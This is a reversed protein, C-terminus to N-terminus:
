PIVKRRVIDMDSENLRVLVRDTAPNFDLLTDSGFESLAKMMVESVLPQPSGGHGDNIAISSFQPPAQRSIFVIEPRNPVFAPSGAYGEFVTQPPGGAAPLLMIRAATEGYAFLGIWHGDSSWGFPSGDKAVVRETKTAPDLIVTEGSTQDPGLRELLVPGLASFGKFYTSQNPVTPLQTDRGSNVDVIHAEFFGSPRSTYGLRKSDPSWNIDGAPGATDLHQTHGDSVNLLMLEGLLTGSWSPRVFAVQNGDPSLQANSLLRDDTLVKDGDPSLLHLRSRHRASVYYLWGSADIAPSHDEGTSFTVQEPKGGAIKVRWLNVLGQKVASYYAWRGNPSVAAPAAILDDTVLARPPASGDSPVVLLRPQRRKQYAEVFVIQSGDPTWAPLVKPAGAVETLNQPNEGRPGGAYLDEKWVGAKNELRSFALRKGDPSFVGFEAAPLIRHTEGGLAPVEWLADNDISFIIRSGDASFRPFSKAGSTRTLQTAEGSSAFAVYVQNDGSIFALLKGDPSLAPYSISARMRTVPYTQSQGTGRPPALFFTALATVVVAAALLAPVRWKAGAPPSLVATAPVPALAPGPAPSLGPAPMRISATVATLKREARRLDALLDACSQYREERDKEMLKEVVREFDEPVNPDFQRIPAPADHCIHFMSDVMPGDFAKRGSLSEYLVSGLSFLDSRADMDLMRTQEPSMYHVTGLIFGPTTLSNNMTAAAEEEQSVNPHRLKAIGFDLLKTQGETSIIINEPKIDRHIVGANHARGLSEALSMAIKLVTKPDLGTQTLKKRLTEGEVLEMAIFLRGEWEGVDYITVIGPHNLASVTRAERLFRMRQDEMRSRGASKPEPVKEEAAERVLREWTEAANPGEDLLTMLKLAVARGLRIDTARYVEGMGGEGLKATIRYHSITTGIM